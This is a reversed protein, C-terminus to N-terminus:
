PQTMSQMREQCISPHTIMQIQKLILKRKILLTTKKIQVLNRQRVRLKLVPYSKIMEQLELITSNLEEMKHTLKGITDKHAQYGTWLELHEDTVSDFTM